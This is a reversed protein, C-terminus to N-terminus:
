IIFVAIFDFLLASEEGLDGLLDGLLLMCLANVIVLHLIMVFDHPLDVM